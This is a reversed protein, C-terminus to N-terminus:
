SASRERNADKQAERLRRAGDGPKDGWPHPGSQLEDLLAQAETMSDSVIFPDFGPEATIRSLRAEAAAIQQRIIQSNLRRLEMTADAYQSISLAQKM